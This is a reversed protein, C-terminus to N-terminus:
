LMGGSARNMNKLKTVLNNRTINNMSQQDSTYM